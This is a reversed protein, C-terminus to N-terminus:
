VVKRLLQSSGIQRLCCLYLLHKKEAHIGPPSGRAGPVVAVAVICLMWDISHAIM